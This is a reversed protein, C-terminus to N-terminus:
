TCIFVCGQSYCKFYLSMEIFYVDLKIVRSKCSSLAAFRPVTKVTLIQSVVKTSM